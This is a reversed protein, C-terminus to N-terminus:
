PGVGHIAVWADYAGSDSVDVSDLLGDGNLAAPGAFSLREVIGSAGVSEWM